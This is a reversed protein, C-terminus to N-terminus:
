CARHLYIFASLAEHQVMKSDDRLTLVGVGGTLVVTGDAAMQGAERGHCWSCYTLPAEGFCLISVSDSSSPVEVVM